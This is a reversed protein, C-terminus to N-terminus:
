VTSTCFRCVIDVDNMCLIDVFRCMWITLFCCFHKLRHMTIFEDRCQFFIVVAYLVTFLHLFSFQLNVCNKDCGLFLLSEYICQITFFLESLAVDLILSFIDCLENFRICQLRLNLASREVLSCWVRM